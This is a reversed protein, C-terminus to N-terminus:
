PFGLTTFGGPGRRLPPCLHRNKHGSPQSHIKKVVQHRKSASRVRAKSCLHVEGLSGLITIGSEERGLVNGMRLTFMVLM